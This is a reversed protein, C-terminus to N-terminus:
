CQSSLTKLGNMERLFASFLLSGGTTKLALLRLNTVQYRLFTYYITIFNISKLYKKDQTNHQM